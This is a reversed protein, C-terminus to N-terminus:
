ETKGFRERYKVCHIYGALMKDVKKMHNIFWNILFAQLHVLYDKSLGSDNMQKWYNKVSKYLRRHDQKHFVTGPYAHKKMLREEDNFHLVVYGNFFEIAKIVEESSVGSEVARNIVNIRKIMERHQNDIHPDGCALENTWCIEMASEQMQKKTPTSIMGSHSNGNAQIKAIVNLSCSNQNDVQRQQM